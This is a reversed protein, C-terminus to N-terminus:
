RAAYSELFDCDSCKFSSTESIRKGSVDLNTGQIGLFTRRVPEGEMWFLPFYNAEQKYVFTGQAMVGGCKPCQREASEM